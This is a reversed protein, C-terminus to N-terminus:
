LPLQEFIVAEGEYSMRSALFGQTAFRVNIVANAGMTKAHDALAELAKSMLYVSSEGMAYDTFTKDHHGEVPGLTRYPYQSPPIGQYIAVPLKLARGKYRSFQQPNTTACGGVLLGALLGLFGVKYRLLKGM